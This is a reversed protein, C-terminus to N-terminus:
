KLKLKRNEPTDIFFTVSRYRIKGYFVVKVVGIMGLPRTFNTGLKIWVFTRLAVSFVCWMIVEKDEGADQNLEIIYDMEILFLKEIEISEM